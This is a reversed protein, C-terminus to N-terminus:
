FILELKEMAHRFIDVPRFFLFKASPNSPPMDLTRGNTQRVTRLRFFPSLSM